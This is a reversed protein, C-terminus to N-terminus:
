LTTLAQVYERMCVSVFAHMRVCVCVCVCVCVRVRVFHKCLDLCILIIHKRQILMSREDSLFLGVVSFWIVTYSIFSTFFPIFTVGRMYM